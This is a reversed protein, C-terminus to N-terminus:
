CLLDEILKKQQARLADNIEIRQLLLEGYPRESQREALGLKRRTSELAAWGAQEEADAV